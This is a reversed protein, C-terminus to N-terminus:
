FHQGKLAVVTGQVVPAYSAMTTNGHSAMGNQGPLRTRYPSASAAPGPYGVIPATGQLHQQQQGPWQNSLNANSGACSLFDISAACCDCCYWFLSYFVAVWFFCMGLWSAQDAFGIPNCAEGRAAWETGKYSWGFSCLLIFFYLCVGIDHLFVHKFSRQVLLMPISGHATPGMLQMQEVLNQWVRSQFYPAFLLNVCAFGIQVYLWKPITVEPPTMTTGVCAALVPTCLASICFAVECFCLLATIVVYSSLPKLLFVHCGRALTDCCDVCPQCNVQDFIRGCLMCLYGPLECIGRACNFVHIM